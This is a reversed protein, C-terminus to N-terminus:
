LLRWGPGWIALDFDILRNLVVERNPYHSGVFVVDTNPEDLFRKLYNMVRGGTCMGSGAIIVAPLNSKDLYDMTSMHEDHDGITTLNEFVLPQDDHGNKRSNLM